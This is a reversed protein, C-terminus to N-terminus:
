GWPRRFSMLPLTSMRYCSRYVLDAFGAHDICWIALVHSSRVNLVGESSRFRASRCVRLLLQRCDLAGCLREAGNLAVRQEGGAGGVSASPAALGVRPLAVHRCTFISEPPLDRLAIQPSLPQCARQRHGSFGQAGPVSVTATHDVELPVTVTALDGPALTMTKVVAAVVAM